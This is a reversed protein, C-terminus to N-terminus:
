AKLTGSGSFRLGDHAPRIDGPLERCLTEYDLDVHMHTLVTCRPRLRKSWAISQELSLHSPHPQRRLTGVIWVDLNNLHDLSPEPIDSLDTSYAVDGFRYGLSGIGGHIQQFPLVRIAGGAGDIEFPEGAVIRNEELIAPYNSKAPSRFCYDFGNLIRDATELDMYVHVRSKRNIVFARLDDIGHLHDAHSHTYLVGDIWDVDADILQERLDPGTDVLVRTVRDGDWKEVLFSSRRRRNKPNSPDCLGWDNGIRPVGPSAGCGLVTFMLESM